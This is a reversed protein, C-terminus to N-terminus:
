QDIRLPETHHIDFRARSVPAPMTSLATVLGSKRYRQITGGFRRQAGGGGPPRAGQSAGEASLGQAGELRLRARAM